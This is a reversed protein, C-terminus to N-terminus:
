PFGKNELAEIDQEAAGGKRQREVGSVIRNRATDILRFNQAPYVPEPMHMYVIGVPTLGVQGKSFTFQIQSFVETQCAPM